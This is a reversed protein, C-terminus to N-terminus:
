AVAGVISAAAVAFGLIGAVGGIMAAPAGWWQDLLWDAQREFRHALYCLGFVGGLLTGFFAAFSIGIVTM